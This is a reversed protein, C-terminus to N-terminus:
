GLFDVLTPQIIRAGVSLSARYVSEEMKLETIMKALDIGETKDLLDIYDVENVDLRAVTAELRNTRAGIQARYKLVTNMSDKIEGVIDDSILEGDDAELADEFREVSDFVEKFVESGILNIPIRESHGLNYEITGDVPQIIIEGTIEDKAFPPKDTIYGGFIYRNVSTSNGEQLLQDKLEKVEYLIKEREDATLPGNAAQVALENLRHLINGANTLAAETDKMWTLADEANNNYQQIANLQRRIKLAMAAGVPDDSPRRIRKRSAIMDNIDALRKLNQTLNRTFNENIMSQTIRM